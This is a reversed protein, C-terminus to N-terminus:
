DVLPNVVETIDTVIIRIFDGKDLEFYEKTELFVTNGDASLYFKLRHRKPFNKADDIITEKESAQGPMLRSYVSYNGWSIDTMAVNHIENIVQIKAEEQCSAFALSLIALLIITRKM